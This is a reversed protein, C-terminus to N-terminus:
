AVGVDFFTRGYSATEPTEGAFSALARAEASVAASSAADVLSAEVGGHLDELLCERQHRSADVRGHSGEPGHAFM